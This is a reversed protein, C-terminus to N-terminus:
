YAAYKIIIVVIQVALPRRDRGLDWVYRNEAMVEEMNRSRMFDPMHNKWLKQPRVRKKGSDLTLYYIFLLHNKYKELYMTLHSEELTKVNTDQKKKNLKRNNKLKQFYNFNNNIWM